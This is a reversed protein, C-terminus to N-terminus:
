ARGREAAVQARVAPAVEEAFRALQDEGEGWFMFTDFGYGVALDTLEDVWQDVPGRLLGLRASDTIEGNTNLVRRIEAPDRGAEAAAQDLRAGAEGLPTIEGRLSPVWGDALRGALRLARPRYVGLWIGIPHVPVPGSHAGTLRYHTGTFRLNREGSWIMRIVHIAEELADLADRPERRPGGYAAIADWFGGAGLGLEFRGGSLVDLSAATKAMIAPPRLPLNAVDPFFGVRTTAAAIAGLLAWSDVFRRQYPHDQIGIWDLGRAEIERATDLLPDAANPILFYGFTLDRGYDPVTVRYGRPV